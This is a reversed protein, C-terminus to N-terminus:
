SAAGRDDDFAAGLIARARGIRDEAPADVDDLARIADLIARDEDVDGDEDLLVFVGSDHRIDWDDLVNGDEDVLAGRDDLDEVIRDWDSASDYDARVYDLARSEVDRVFEEWASELDEIANAYDEASYTAPRGTDAEFAARAEDCDEDFYPSVRLWDEFAADDAEAALDDPHTCDAEIPRTQCSGFREHPETRLGLGCWGDVHDLIARTREDLKAVGKAFAEVDEVVLRLAVGEGQCYVTWYPGEGKGHDLRVGTGDLPGGEGTLYEVLCETTQMPNFADAYRQVIRDRIRGEPVDAPRYARTTRVVTAVTPAPAPAPAPDHAHTM